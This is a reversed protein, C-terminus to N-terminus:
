ENKVKYFYDGEELFNYISEINKASKPIIIKVVEESIKSKVNFKYVDNIIEKSILTGRIDIIKLETLLKEKNTQPFLSYLLFFCFSIALKM